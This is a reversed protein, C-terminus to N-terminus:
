GFHNELGFGQGVFFDFNVVFGFAHSEIFLTPWGHTLHWLNEDVILSHAAQSTQLGSQGL